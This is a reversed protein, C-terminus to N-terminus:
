EPFVFTFEDKAVLAKKSCIYLWEEIALAELNRYGLNEKQNLSIAQAKTLIETVNFFLKKEREKGRSRDFYVIKEYIAIGIGEKKAEHVAITFDNEFSSRFVGEKYIVGYTTSTYLEQKEM